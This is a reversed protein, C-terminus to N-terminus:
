QPPTLRDRRDSEGSPRHGRRCALGPQAEGPRWDDRGDDRREEEGGRRGDLTTRTLPEGDPEARGEEGGGGCGDRRTTVTELSDEGRM